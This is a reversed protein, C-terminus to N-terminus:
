RPDRRPRTGFDGIGTTSADDALDSASRRVGDPGAELVPEFGSPEDLAAYLFPTAHLKVDYASLARRYSGVNRWRTCLVWTIPEDTSHALEGGLFGPCAAFAGLAAAGRREFDERDAPEAFRVIAQM